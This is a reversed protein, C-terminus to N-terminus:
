YENFIETSFDVGQLGFPSTKASNDIKPLLNGHISPLWNLIKEIGTTVPSDTVEVTIRRLGIGPGFSAALDDPNVQEVSKPEKIDRFRVLMPYNSRPLEFALKENKWRPALKIWSKRWDSAKTAIIQDRMIAVPLQVENESRLLGFLTGEPLDLVIAEGSYDWQYKGHEFAALAEHLRAEWVSSATKIGSPTDVELTIRYRIDGQPELFSCSSFALFFLSTASSLFLRRNM